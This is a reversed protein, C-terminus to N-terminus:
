IPCQVFGEIAEEEGTVTNVVTGNFRISSSVGTDVLDVTGSFGLYNDIAVGNSAVQLLFYAHSPQDLNDRMNFTATRCEGNHTVAITYSLGDRQYFATYTCSVDLGDDSQVNCGGNGDNTTGLFNIFNNGTDDASDDDSCGGVQLLIFLPLLMLLKIKM